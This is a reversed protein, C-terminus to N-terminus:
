GDGTIVSQQVQFELGKTAILNEVVREAIVTHGKATPHVGDDMMLTKDFVIDAFNILHVDPYESVVQKLIGLYYNHIQPILHTPILFDKRTETVHLGMPPAIFYVKINNEAAVKIMEKVNSIYFNNPVRTLQSIDESSIKSPANNILSYKKPPYIMFHLLQYTRLKSFTNHIFIQSETLEKFENDPLGGIALWHDNWGFYSVLIDPKYQVSEKLFELGQYTSYGGVAAILPEVEAGYQEQLLKIIRDPYYGMGATCSDGLFLIRKLGPNRAVSIRRGIYGDENVDGFEPQAAWMRKKHPIFRQVTIQTQQWNIYNGVMKINMFKPFQSYNFGSFYLALEMVSFFFALSFAGLLLNTRWGAKQIQAKLM